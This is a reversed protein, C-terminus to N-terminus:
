FLNRCVIATFLLDLKIKKMLQKHKVVKLFPVFYNLLQILNFSVIQFLNYLQSTELSKTIILKYM